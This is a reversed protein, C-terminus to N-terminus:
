GPLNVIVKMMREADHCNGLFCVTCKSPFSRLVKVTRIPILCLGRLFGEEWTIKFYFLNFKFQACSGILLFTENEGIWLLITPPYVKVRSYRHIHDLTTKGQYKRGREPYGFATSLAASLPPAYSPPTLVVLSPCPCHQYLTCRGQHSVPCQLVTVVPLRQSYLYTTCKM